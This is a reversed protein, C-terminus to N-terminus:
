KTRVSLIQRPRTFSLVSLRWLLLIEVSSTGGVDCVLVDHCPGAFSAQGWRLVSNPDVDGAQPAPLPVITGNDIHALLNQEHEFDLDWLEPAM